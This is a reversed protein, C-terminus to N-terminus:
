IAPTATSTRTPTSTSTSRNLSQTTYSHNNTNKKKLCFVAYSIIQHSSNLRTSKRDLSNKGPFFESPRRQDVSGHSRQHVAHLVHITGDKLRDPSKRLRLKDKGHALINLGVTKPWNWRSCDARACGRM